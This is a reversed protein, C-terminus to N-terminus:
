KRFTVQVAKERVTIAEALEGGRDADVALEILKPTATYTTKVKVLDNFRDGLLERVKEINEPPIVAEYQFTVKAEVDLDTIFTVTGADDLFNRAKKAIKEKNEKLASELAKIEYYLACADEIVYAFETDVIQRKERGRGIRVFVTRGQEAQKTKLKSAMTAM